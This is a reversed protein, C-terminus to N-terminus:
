LGQHEQWASPTFDDQVRTAVSALIRAQNYGVKPEFTPLGPEAQIGVDSVVGITFHNAHGASPSGCPQDVPEREQPLLAELQREVHEIGPLLM